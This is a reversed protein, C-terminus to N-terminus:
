ADKMITSEICPNPPLRQNNILETKIIQLFFVVVVVLFMQFYIQHNPISSRLDWSRPLLAKSGKSPFAQLFM